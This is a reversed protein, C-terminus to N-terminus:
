ETTKADPNWVNSHDLFLLATIGVLTSGIFIANAILPTQALAIFALCDLVVAATIMIVVSRHKDFGFSVLRHYTHDRNSQYIPAGRRLRSFVVLCTDFIPVGMILIPVFWSSAQDTPIPQYLIAVGALLFGILQAGSDGLFCHAPPSNYILLGFVIGFLLAVFQALTTQGSMLMALLFFALAAIGLGVALGDMSDVFNYANTIGVIWIITILWNLWLQPEVAQLGLFEPKIIRVNEGLLVFVTAALIQGGLKVWPPIKRADDWLGVLFVILAPIALPLFGGMKWFGFLPVLILLGFFIIIGGALPTPQHHKKHPQSDPIDIWGWLRALKIGVFGLLLTSITGALIEDFIIRTPIDSM